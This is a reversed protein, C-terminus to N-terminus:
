SAVEDDHFHEIARNLSQLRLVSKAESQVRGLGKIQYGEAYDYSTHLVEGRPSLFQDRNTKCTNCYLTREFGGKVKVVRSQRWNHGFDRCQLFEDSMDKVVSRVEKPTAVKPNAQIQTM